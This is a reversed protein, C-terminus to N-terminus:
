TSTGSCSTTVRLFCNRDLFSLASLFFALFSSFFASFSLVFCFPSSFGFFFPRVALSFCSSWFFVVTFALSLAPSFADGEDELVGGAEDAAELADGEFDEVATTLRLIFRSLRIDVAFAQIPTLVPVSESAMTPASHWSTSMCGGLSASFFFFFFSFFVGFSPFVVLSFFSLFPLLEVWFAEFADLPPFFFATFLLLFLSWPLGFTGLSGLLDLLFNCHILFDLIKDQLGQLFTM